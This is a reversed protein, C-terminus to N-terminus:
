GDSAEENGKGEKGADRPGPAGRLYADVRDRVEGSRAYDRVSFGGILERVQREARPEGPRVAEEPRPQEGEERLRALREARHRKERGVTIAAYMLSVAGVAGGLVTVLAGFASM